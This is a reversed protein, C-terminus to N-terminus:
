PSEYVAMIIKLELIVERVEESTLGEVGRIPKGAELDQISQLVERCGRGCLLDLCKLVAESHDV